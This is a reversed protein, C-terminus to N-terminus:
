EDMEEEIPLGWNGVFGDTDVPPTLDMNNKHVWEGIESKKIVLKDEKGVNGIEEGVGMEKLATIVDEVVLGTEKSIDKVGVVTKKGSTNELVYRAVECTWFATYSKRGMESLPKEPGGVGHERRSLAYSIGMLIKGLGRRQFPPFVLICALNNNDWSLKEKSFFGVIQHQPHPSASPSHLVLLHYTFAAVDFFVSKNDLFLKAFLSLNQAFLTETAGDLLYISHTPQTYILEGPPPEDKLPCFKTHGLFTTPDKTYKFCWKCVYLRNITERGVVDNPYYCPYWSEILVDGLVVNKINPAQRPPQSPM